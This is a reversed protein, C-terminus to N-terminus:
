QAWEESHSIPAGLGSQIAAAVGEAVERMGVLTLRDATDRPTHVIRATGWNGRM